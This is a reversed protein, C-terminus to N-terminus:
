AAPAGVSMMDAPTTDSIAALARWLIEIVSTEGEARGSPFSVPGMGLFRVNNIKRERSTGGEVKYQLLLQDAAVALLQNLTAQETVNKILITGTIEIGSIEALTPGIAGDSVDDTVALRTALSFGSAGAIAVPASNRRIITARILRSLAM